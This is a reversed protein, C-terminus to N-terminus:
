AEEILVYTDGHLGGQWLVDRQRQPTAPSEVLAFWSTSGDAYGSELIEDFVEANAPARLAKMLAARNQESVKICYVM